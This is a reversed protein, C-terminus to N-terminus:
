SNLSSLMSTLQSSLNNLKNMSTDLNQFQVQYRTVTADILKQTKDIQLQMIDSQSTLSDTSSKIVGDIKNESDGAYNTIITGLSTALGDAGEKGMFMAGIADPNDAIAKDLTEEDLTMQGDAPNIKIGLDDLASFDGSGYVGNAAARIDDVMGRLTSDGMLAGNQDNQKAVDSDSLGSTDNQVYKSAASTLTLLANYQKVFDQLATKITSPDETLTLQEPEGKESVAALKLTVGTIIDSINNSSRTYTDGDVTLMANQATAVSIMADGNAEGDIVKGGNSTNLIQGLKEDGDVSVTMEGAKGTTKSSFVLQYGDDSRQVSANVNGGQKNIAKAIQDMSTEDDKLEVSITSVTGDDSTQSITIKRTGGTTDGLLDTSKTDKTINQGDVATKLKHATALQTVTVSHSDALAGSGATATFAKNSSVTLSNFADGGLKKVSTQLTTLQSSLAGWASIKAKFNNQQTTYPTLRLQESSRLQELMGTLDLGSGTGLSSISPM